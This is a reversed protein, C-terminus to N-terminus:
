FNRLYYKETAAVVVVDPCLEKFYKIEKEDELNFPHRVEIKLQNSYKHVSIVLKGVNVKKPTSYLGIINQAGMIISKLIPVAFEPTGMFILKLSM